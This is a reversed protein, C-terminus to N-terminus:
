PREQPIIETKHAPFCRGTWGGYIVPNRACLDVLLGSLPWRAGHRLRARAALAGYTAGALNVAVDGMTDPLGSRQANTGFLADITFELLEWAGGVLAALGVGLTGLVWFATRPPAGATPLLALAVGAIALVASAVFHLGADWAPVDRYFGGAEGLVFAALCFVLVGTALGRPMEIGSLWTYLPLLAALAMAGGAGLTLLGQGTLAGAAAILAAGGWALARLLRPLAPSPWLSAHIM